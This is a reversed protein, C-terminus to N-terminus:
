TKNLSVTYMHLGARLYYHKPFGVFFEPAVGRYIHMEETVQRSFELRSTLGSDLTSQLEVSQIRNPKYSETNLGSLPM